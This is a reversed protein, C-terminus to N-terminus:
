IEEEGDEYITIVVGVDDRDPDPFMDSFGRIMAWTDNPIIGCRVLSDLLFKKAFAVNDKDKRKNKCKWEFVIYVPVSHMVVDQRLLEAHIRKEIDKKMKAGAFRNSREANVYENLSPLEFPITYIM